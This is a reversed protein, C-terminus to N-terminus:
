GTQVAERVREDRVLVINGAAAPRAKVGTGDLVHELAPLLAADRLQATIPTNIPVIDSSYSFRVGAQEAIRDLVDGLPRDAVDLTVRAASARPAEDALAADSARNAVLEQAGLSQTWGATMLLFIIAAIRM